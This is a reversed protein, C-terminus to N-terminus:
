SATRRAQERPRGRCAGARQRGSRLRDDRCPTARGFGQSNSGHDARAGAFELTFAGKSVSSGTNVQNPGLASVGSEEGEALAPERVGFHLMGPTTPVTIAFSVPTIATAAVRNSLNNGAAAVAEM